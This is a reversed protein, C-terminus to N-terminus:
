KRTKETGGKKHEKKAEKLEKKAVDLQQQKQAVQFLLISYTLCHNVTLPFKQVHKYPLLVFIIM